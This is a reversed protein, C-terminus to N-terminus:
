PPEEREPAYDAPVGAETTHRVSRVYPRGLDPILAMEQMPLRTRVVAGVHFDLSQSRIASKREGRRKRGEWGAVGRTKM